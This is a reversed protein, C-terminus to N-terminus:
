RFPHLACQTQASLRRDPVCEGEVVIFYFLFLKLLTDLCSFSVCGVETFDLCYHFQPLEKNFSQLLLLKLLSGESGFTENLMFDRLTENKTM